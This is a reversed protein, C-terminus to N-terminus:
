KDAILDRAYVDCFRISEAGTRAKWIDARIMVPAKTPKGDVLYYCGGWCTGEVEKTEDYTKMPADYWFRSHIPLM